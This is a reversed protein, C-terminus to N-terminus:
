SEGGLYVVHEGYVRAARHLDDGVTTGHDFFGAGHGNRALYFDQGAYGLGVDCQACHTRVAQLEASLFDRCDSRAQLKFEPTIDDVYIEAQEGRADYACCWAACELYGRTFEGIEVMSPQEIRRLEAVCADEFVEAVGEDWAAALDGADEATWDEGLIDRALSAPTPDDAWEGSLTPQAPLYDWLVPDGDEAMRLVTAVFEPKTNGDVTWSAVARAARRGLERAENRQEETAM